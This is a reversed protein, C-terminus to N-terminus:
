RAFTREILQDSTPTQASNVAQPIELVQGHEAVADSNTESVELAHTARLLRGATSSLGDTASTPPGKLYDALPPPGPITEPVEEWDPDTTGSFSGTASTPPLKLYDAGPRSPIGDSESVSPTFDEDSQAFAPPTISLSASGILVILITAFRLINM